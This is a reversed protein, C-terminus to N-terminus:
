SLGTQGGRYAYQQAVPILYPHTAEAIERGDLMVHVHTHVITPSPTGAGVSVVSPTMATATSAAMSYGSLASRLPQTGSKAASNIASIGSAGGFARTAEPILIGEQPRLMAMVSDRGRDVGPVVGGSAFGKINIRDIHPGGLKASLKNYNDIINDNVLRIAIRIPTRLMDIMSNWVRGITEVASRVRPVVHEGIFDGIARFIPKIASNWVPAIVSDYLARFMDGLNKMSMVWLGFVMQVIAWGVQFAMAVNEWIPKVITSWWVMFIGGVVEVATKIGDFIPSLVDWAAQGATQIASWAGSGGQVLGAFGNILTTLIPLGAELPGYMLKAGAPVESFANMLKTLAVVFDLMKSGSGSTNKMFNLFGDVLNKIIEVFKPGNEKIYALFKKFEESKSLSAAWDAFKRTLGVLGEGMDKTSPAFAVILSAFGEAVNGLIKAIGTLAPGATDGMYKFFAQWEPNSLSKLGKEFLDGLVTALKGIFSNLQPFYPLLSEIGRQMGPLLGAEATRRLEALPGDILGRLFYVFKRGEPSLKAMAAAFQDMAAGGASGTDIAAQAVQRQAAAVSQTASILREQVDLIKEQAARVQDSGEVGRANADATDSALRSQVIGTRSLDAQAQEYSLRSQERDARTASTDARVRRLEELAKRVNLAGQRQARDGDALDMNMDQISRRAAERAATLDDQIRIADRQASVLGREASSLADAASAQRYMKSAADSSSGSTAKNAAGLLQVAKLPGSLGLMLTALGAGATVAASGLAVIGAAAVGAAPGVMPLVGAVAATIAYFITVGRSAGSSSSGLNQLPAPDISGLAQELQFLEMRARSADIRVRIDPSERALMVLQIHIARIQAMATAADVDVGIRADRMAAIRVTLDRLDQDAGATAVGIEIRPMARAAAALRTRIAREFQDAFDAGARTGGGAGGAGSTSVRVGVTRDRLGALQARLATLEARGDVDVKVRVTAQMADLEKIAAIAKAVGSDDFKSMIELM